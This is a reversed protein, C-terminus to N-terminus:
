FSTLGPATIASAVVKIRLHRLSRRDKGRHPVKKSDAMEQYENLLSYLNFKGELYQLRRFSYSKSPGDSSASLITDLDMYFERLTPIHLVPTNMDASTTTEYVQFVGNNDLRFIMDSKEPVPLCDEFDFDEGIDHGPKRSRRPSLPQVIEQSEGINGRSSWHDWSPEPPPPYIEFGPEDKPNDHPGQLSM